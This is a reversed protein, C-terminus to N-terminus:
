RAAKTTCSKMNIYEGSKQRHIGSYKQRIQTIGAAKKSKLKKEKKKGTM